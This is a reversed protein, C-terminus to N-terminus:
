YFEKELKKVELEFIEFSGRGQPLPHPSPSPSDTALAGKSSSDKNGVNRISHYKGPNTGAASTMKKRSFSGFGIVGRGAEDSQRVSAM